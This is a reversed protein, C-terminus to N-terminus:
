KETMNIKKDERANKKDRDTTENSKVIESMIRAALQHESMQHVFSLSKHRIDNERQKLIWYTDNLRDQIIKNETVLRRGATMIENMQIDAKRVATADSETHAKVLAFDVVETAPHRGGSIPVSNGRGPPFGM